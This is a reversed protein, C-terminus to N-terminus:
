KITATFLRTTIAQITVENTGIRGLKNQFIGGTIIHIEREAIVWSRILSELNKWGGRNFSPTQPSMNSRYFSESMAKQSIKMDGAPALHGRDYGSKYYDSKSASGTRVYPDSRFDDTREINGNIMQPTLKYYVWEAQEHKESYSLSYYTHNIIERNSKPLYDQGFSVFPILLLLLRIMKKRTNAELNVFLKILESTTLFSISTFIGV